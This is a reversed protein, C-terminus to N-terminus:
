FNIFLNQKEACNQVRILSMKKFKTLIKFKQNKFQGSEFGSNMINFM